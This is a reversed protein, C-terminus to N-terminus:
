WGYRQQFKRSNVGQGHWVITGDEMACTAAYGPQQILEVEQIASAVLRQLKHLHISDEEIGPAAIISAVESLQEQIFDKAHKQFLDIWPFLCFMQLTLKLENFYNGAREEEEIM